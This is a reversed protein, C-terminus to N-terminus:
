TSEPPPTPPPESPDLFARARALADLDEATSGPQVAAAAAAPREHLAALIRQEQEMTAYTAYHVREQQAAFKRLANELIERPTRPALDITMPGYGLPVQATSYFEADFCGLLIRGFLYPALYGGVIKSGEGGGEM